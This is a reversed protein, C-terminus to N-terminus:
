PATWLRDQEELLANLEDDAGLGGWSPPVDLTWRDLRRDRSLGRARRRALRRALLATDRLDIRTVRVVVLNHDEFEEERWNDDSHQAAERHGAGDYEGVTGAEEDLLDPYGLLRGQLDFVPPNCRPPPLGAVLVWVMRLRTEWPGRSMGDLLPLAARAQPVGRWGTHADVYQVLEEQEVLRSALWRDGCVVAETLDAATRMEDFCSRLPTTCPLGRRRTVDDAPLPERSVTAGESARIRGRRGVYLPVALPTRGDEALGDVWAVEHLLASAWGGVAGGAPLRAAQTLIRQPAADVDM